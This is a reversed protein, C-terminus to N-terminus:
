TKHENRDETAAARVQKAKEHATHWDILGTQNRARYLDEVYDCLQIVHARFDRPTM